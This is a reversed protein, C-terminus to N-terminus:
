ARRIVQEEDRQETLQSGLPSDPHRVPYHLVFCHCLRFRYMRFLVDYKSSRVKPQIAYSSYLIDYDIGILRQRACGHKRNESPSSRYLM